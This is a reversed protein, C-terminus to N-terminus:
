RWRMGGSRCRRRRGHRRRRRARRARPLLLSLLRVGARRLDCRGAEHPPPRVTLQLEAELVELCGAAAALDRVSEDRPNRRAADAGRRLLARMASKSSSKAAVHLPTEGRFSTAELLAGAHLLAELADSADLQAAEHAATFGLSSETVNVDVGHQLLLVVADLCRGQVALHLCPTGDSDARTLRAGAAM